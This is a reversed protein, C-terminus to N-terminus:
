ALNYKKIYGYICRLAYIYRYVWFEKNDLRIKYGYNEHIGGGLFRGRIHKMQIRNDKSIISDVFGLSDRDLPLLYGNKLLENMAHFKYKAIYANRINLKM